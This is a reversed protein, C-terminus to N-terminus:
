SDVNGLSWDWLYLASPNAVVDVDEEFTVGLLVEDGDPLILVMDGSLAPGIWVCQWKLVTM